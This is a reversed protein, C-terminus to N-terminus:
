RGRRAGARSRVVVQRDGARLDLRAHQEGPQHGVARRRDGLRTGAAVVGLPHEGGAADVIWRLPRWTVTVLTSSSSSSRMSTGPSRSSPRTRQDGGAHEHRPERSSSRSTPTLQVRVPKRRITSRIPPITRPSRSSGSSRVITGGVLRDGVEVDGGPRQDARDDLGVLDRQGDVLQRQDAQEPQKASPSVTTRPAASSRTLSDSRMVATTSPRRPRPPSSRPSRPRSRRARAGAAQAAARDVRM